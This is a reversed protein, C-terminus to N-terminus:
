TELHIQQPARTRPISRSFSHGETPALVSELQELTKKAVSLVNEGHPTLGGRGHSGNHGRWGSESYQSQNIPPLSVVHGESASTFAPGRGRSGRLHDWGESRTSSDLVDSSHEDSDDEYDNRPTQHPRPSSTLSRPESSSRPFSNFTLRRSPPAHRGDSKSSAMSANLSVDVVRGPLLTPLSPRAPTPPRHSPKNEADEQVLHQISRNLSRSSSSLEIKPMSENPSTLAAVTLPVNSVTMKRNNPGSMKSVVVISKRPSRECEMLSETDAENGSGPSGYLTLDRMLEELVQKEGADPATVLRSQQIRPQNQAAGEEPTSVDKGQSKLSRVEWEQDQGQPAERELSEEVATVIGTAAKVLRSRIWSRDFGSSTGSPTGGKREREASRSVTGKAEAGGSLPKIDGLRGDAGEPSHVPSVSPGEPTGPRDLSASQGKRQLKPADPPIDKSLLDNRERRRRQATSLTRGGFPLSEACVPQLPATPNTPDVPPVISSRRANRLRKSSARVSPTETPTPPRDLDLPNTPVFCSPGSPAGFVQSEVQLLAAIDEHRNKQALQQATLGQSNRQGQVSVHHLKKFAALILLVIERHGFASAYM